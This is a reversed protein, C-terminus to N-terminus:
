LSVSQPERPVNWQQHPLAVARHLTGHGPRVVEPPVKYLEMYPKNCVLLREDADFVLIGVALNDLADALRSSHADLRNDAFARILGVGLIALAGAAVMAALWVPSMSLKDIVITPDPVIQVAGMATFHHSVIALTLLVAAGITARRDDQRMAVILAAAGLLVGMIISALVIPLTWTVHGPVQLAWMGLYHMCAVGGGVIAGGAAAGNRSPFHVAVTLGGCTVLAATALSLSTLLVDYAVAIGPDYALM